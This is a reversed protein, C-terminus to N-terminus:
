YSFIVSQELLQGASMKGLLNIGIWSLRCSSKYPDSRGFGILLCVNKPPLHDIKNKNHITVSNTAMKFSVFEEKRSHNYVLSKKSRLLCKPTLRKIEVSFFFFDASPFSIVVILFSFVTIINSLM